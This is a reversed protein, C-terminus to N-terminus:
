GKVSRYPRSFHVSPYRLDHRPKLTWPPRLRGPERSAFSLQKLHGVAMHHKSERMGEAWAREVVRPHQIGEEKLRHGLGEESHCAIRVMQPRLDSEEGHQRGPPLRQGVM